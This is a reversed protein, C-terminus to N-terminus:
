SKIDVIFWKNLGINHVLEYTYIKDEIKSRCIYRNKLDENKIDIIEGIKITKFELDVYFGFEIPKIPNSDIIDLAFIEVGM